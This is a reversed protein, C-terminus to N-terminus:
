QQVGRNGLETVWRACGSPHGINSAETLRTVRPMVSSIVACEAPGYGNGLRVRDAWGDVDRQSLPEGGLFLTELPALEEEPNLTRVFSPTLFAWTVNMGRVVRPLDAIMDRKQPMCVCGGVLLPTVMDLMAIDFAFSAFQLCRSEPGISMNQAQAVAATCFAGHEVVAGAVVGDVTKEKFLDKSYLVRGDLGKWGQLLHFELDMRTTPSGPVAEAALGELPIRELDQQSHLAFMLQVLPNISTSSDRFGPLLESVIREFPVDQNAFAATMTSRVQRVPGEFTDDKGMAIKMCQTNVFFGIMNEFGPRNRNAIPTGIIASEAGTTLRYHAARFAALLVTFSTTQHYRCFAQLDEYMPGDIVLPVVGADGSLTAPQPKDTLLEAPSSDALMKKWYQLQRGHEASQQTQWVAFDRYQIPLAPIASLPDRGRVAAAYFQGLERRMVDISWGDSIIHHMVVSLVHDNQGLKILAVRWGSQVALDFATTQERRLLQAYEEHTKASMDVINIKITGVPGVAQMGVGDTEYFTTHLIEHRTELTRIAAELAKTNLPGRLRTAMPIIYATKGLDIQELFWLRGQAFSLKVPGDHITKAIPKHSASIRRITDALDSLVPQDFINKVSIDTNLRRSLRAALKTAMLSHGGQNFFNDNIEVGVGLVSGFEECVVTEIDDKPSAHVSAVASPKQIAQATRGLEERDVKGDAGVPLQCGLVVIKQSVMHAPLM